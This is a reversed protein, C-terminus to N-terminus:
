ILCTALYLGNLSAVLRVLCQLQQIRNIPVLLFIYVTFYFAMVYANLCCWPAVSSIQLVHSIFLPSILSLIAQVATILTIHTPDSTLWMIRWLKMMTNPPHYATVDPKTIAPREIYIVDYQITFTYLYPLVTRCTLSSCNDILRM